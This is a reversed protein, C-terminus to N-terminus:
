RMLSYAYGNSSARAKSAYPMRLPTLLSSIMLRSNTGPRIVTTRISSAMPKQGFRLPRHRGRGRRPAIASNRARGADTAESPKSLSSRRIGRATSTPSRAAGSNTSASCSSCRIRRDIPPCGQGDSRRRLLRRLRAGVRGLVHPDPARRDAGIRGLVCGHDVSRRVPAAGDRHPGHGPRRRTRLDRM